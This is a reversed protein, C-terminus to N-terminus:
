PRKDAAPKHLLAVRAHAKAKLQLRLVGGLGECILLLGQLIGLQFVGKDDLGSPVARILGGTYGTSRMIM